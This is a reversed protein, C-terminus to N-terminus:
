KKFFDIIIKAAELSEAEQTEITQAGIHPTAIVNPLSLLELEWPEKPPEVSFVDLAVGSLQGNKLADLLAKEDIVEGRAVNILYAGRKMIKIKEANILHRTEPLLPVHLTVIDGVSLAEELSNAFDVGLSRALIERNRDVDYVVIKADFAKLRKAVEYGIRGFGIISVVKGRIERGMLENKSWKGHRLDYYGKGIGRLVCVILGVTLEAVAVSPAGPTNYVFIGKKKAVNLDINDLGVGARVIIKLKGSNELVRETVKTRGRVILGDYNGVIRALNGEDIGLLVDVDFNNEKLLKLGSEHVQDTVLIRVM